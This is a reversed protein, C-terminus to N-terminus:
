PTSTTLDKSKQIQKNILWALTLPIALCAVAIAVNGPSPNQFASSIQYGFGALGIVLAAMGLFTGVVFDRYRVRSAGVIINSLMFPAPIKRIFFVALTGNRELARNIRVVRKGGYREVRKRGLTRGIAFGVSASSLSGAMAYLPGLWPGFAVGTAAVLLLVPFLVLGLATFAVVVLPLAYWARRHPAMWASIDRLSPLDTSARSQWAVLALVFLGVIAVLMAVFAWSFQSGPLPERVARIARKVAKVPM